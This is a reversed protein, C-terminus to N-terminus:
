LALKGLNSLITGIAQSVIAMAYISCGVGVYLREQKAEFRDIQSDVKSGHSNHREILEDRLIDLSEGNDAIKGSKSKDYVEIPPDGFGRHPVDIAAPSGDYDCIRSLFQVLYTYGEDGEEIRRDKRPTQELAKAVGAYLEEEKILNQPIQFSVISPFAIVLTGLVSLFITLLSLLLPISCGPLLKCDGMLVIMYFITVASLSLIGRWRTIRPAEVAM